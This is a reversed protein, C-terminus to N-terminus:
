EEDAPWGGANRRDRMERIIVESPPGGIPGISERLQRMEEILAARDVGAARALAQRAEEEMSRGAAAARKRLVDIVADDLNRITIQGM